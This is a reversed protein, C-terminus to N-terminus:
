VAEGEPGLGFRKRIQEIQNRVRLDVSGLNSEIVCGGDLISEDVEISLNTLEKLEELIKPKMSVLYKYDRDGVKVAVSDHDIFKELAARIMKLIVEKDVSLEHQIVKQSIQLALDALDKESKKAIAERVEAIERAAATFSEVVPALKKQELEAGMKRGKEYGDEFAKKLTDDDVNKPPLEKARGEARAGKGGKPGAKEPPASKKQKGSQKPAPVTEKVGQEPVLPRSSTGSEAGGKPGADNVQASTDAAQHPTGILPIPKEKQRGRAEFNRFVFEEAGAGGKIVKPRPKTNSSM